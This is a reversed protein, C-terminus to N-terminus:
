FEFALGLYPMTEWMYASLYSNSYVDWIRNLENKHNLVNLIGFFVVLNSERFQYRRDARLYLCQYNKLHETMIDNVDIWVRGTETSREEDVPTFSRNGSWIWRAGTEWKRSFKYGGSLCFVFRNDFLRNRWAGTLDRYRARFYTFYALGYLKKSIKKQVTFEVGRAYATGAAVLLGYDGFRDNDGNVDDIIFDYPYGPSMPFARYAKDYAEWTIQTDPSALYKLGLVLHRARPDRLAANGPSQQILVLPMQQTFIGFAGTLSLRRTLSWDFSFRPSLSFRESFPVYDLRLGSSLSLGHFPSVVVTLYAGASTGRLRREAEDYDDRNRFGVSQAEVGAILRLSPSLSFRNVNRFTWWTNGYDYQEHLEGSWARFESETGNLFSSSLSTDSYGRDGWLHRWTLGATGSGFEEGGQPDYDTGSGGGIALISLRDRRGLDYAVKGQLDFYHGANGSGMLAAMLDLDSRNGSFMWSGKGGGLPGEIQAGFGIVSLNLRGSLRERSGERYRIDLISSLRNGYSADFGGTSIELSEIFDMNLMSVNGGSAGQQPFHNINPVFINDVYFGNEMPSGGRVILDNAEEEAKVIGPVAYLARSVDGLAGSDRRLEEANFQMRSVPKDPAPSFYDATVRIEKQIARAALMEMDLFTTRGSRVIVDARTESYYGDLEFAVVHFGL